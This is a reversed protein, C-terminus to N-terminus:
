PHTKPGICPRYRSRHRRGSVCRDWQVLEELWGTIKEEGTAMVPRGPIADDLVSM